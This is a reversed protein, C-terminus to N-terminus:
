KTMMGRLMTFYTYTTNLLSKFAELTMPFKGGARIKIPTQSRQILIQICKRIKTNSQNWNVNYAADAIKLSESSIENAHWYELFLAYLLCFTYICSAIKAMFNEMLLFSTLLVSLMLTFLMLEVLCIFSVLNELTQCYDIIRQHFKILERLQLLMIEDASPKLAELKHRLIKLLSAAFTLWSILLNTFPVYTLLVFPMSMTLQTLYLIEYLPSKLTDVFPIHIDYPLAREELILPILTSAAASACAFTFSLKSIISIRRPIIKLVNWAGIDDDMEIENHWEEISRFFNIFETQHKIVSLIRVLSNTLIATMFVGIALVSTDRWNKFLNLYQWVNMFCPIILIIVIREIRAYEIFGLYKWLALNFSFLPLTYYM